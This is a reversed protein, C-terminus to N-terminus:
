PSDVQHSVKAGRHAEYIDEDIVRALGFDAVKCILHESVLINRAALNTMVNPKEFVVVSLIVCNALVCIVFLLFFILFEESKCFLHSKSSLIRLKCLVGRAAM